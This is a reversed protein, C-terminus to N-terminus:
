TRASCSLPCAVSSSTGTASRSLILHRRERVRGVGGNRLQRAMLTSQQNCAPHARGHRQGAQEEVDPLEQLRVQHGVHQAEAHREAAQREAHHMLERAAGPPDDNPPGDARRRAHQRHHRQEKKGDREAHITEVPPRVGIQDRVVLRELVLVQVQVRREEEDPRGDVEEHPVPQRVEQIGPRELLIAGGLGPERAAHLQEAAAPEDRVPQRDRERREVPQHRELRM